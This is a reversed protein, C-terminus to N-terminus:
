PGLGALPSFTRSLFARARASLQAVFPRVEEPRGDLALAYALLFLNQPDGDHLAGRARAVAEGPRRDALAAIALHHLVWPDAEGHEARALAIRQSDPDSGFWSIVPLRATSETYLEHLWAEEPERGAMRSVFMLNQLEQQRFSGLTAPVLSAPWLQAVDPSAAFAERSPEAFLVGYSFATPISAPPRAIRGPWNDTVPEAGDTLRALAGADALFLAGMQEPTEIGVDRLDAGASTEWRRRVHEAPVPGRADRTGVLMWDLNHGSWLTCDPFAGCFARIVGRAARDDLTHVPLWYSVFGGKALRSRLLAFYEASYLNVIDANTPPPPESTILDFHRDTLGLFARGDDVHVRVRPDRLPNEGTREAVVGALDLVEPAIDVVDISTLEPSRVLARATVGVGYCVLLAARPRPHLALPLHVYLGMYRRANWSTSSMSFGNTVLRLSLAEGRYQREVVVATETLGERVALISGPGFRDLTARAYVRNMLDYPFLALFTAFLAFAAWGLWRGPQSVPLRASPPLLLIALGYVLALLAFSREMGLVPLLLFGGLLAGLLAGTTNAVTLAGASRADSELCRRVAAGLGTFVMGSLLCVPFTLYAAGVLTRLPGAHSPDALLPLLRPFGAYQAVVLIGSTALLTGLFPVTDRRALWAGALLGGFAIGALGIGGHLKADADVPRPGFPHAGAM